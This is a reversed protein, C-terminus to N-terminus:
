TTSKWIEALGANTFVVGPVVGAVAAFEVIVTDGSLPKVPLTDSPNEIDPPGPVRDHVNVGAVIDPPEPLESSDHLPVPPEYVTVTVPEVPDIVPVLVISDWLVCTVTFTCSKVIMGFGLAILTCCHREFVLM